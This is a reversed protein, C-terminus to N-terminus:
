YGAFLSLDSPIDTKNAAKKGCLCSRQVLLKGLLKREHWLLNAAVSDQLLSITAYVVRSATKKWHLCSPQNVIMYDELSSPQSNEKLAYLEAPKEKM